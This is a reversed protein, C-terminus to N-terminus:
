KSVVKLKIPIDTVPVTGLAKVVNANDDGIIMANNYAEYQDKTCISSPSIELNYSASPYTEEFSYINGSTWNLAELTSVIYTNVQRDVYGKDVLDGSDSPGKVNLYYEKLTKDSCVEIMVKNTQCLSEINFSLFSYYGDLSIKGMEIIDPTLDLYDNNRRAMEINQNSPDLIIVNDEGDSLRGGTLPLYPLDAVTTANTKGITM